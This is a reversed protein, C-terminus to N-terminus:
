YDTWRRSKAMLYKCWYKVEPLMTLHIYPAKTAPCPELITPPSAVSPGPTPKRVCRGLIWYAQCNQFKDEETQLDLLRDGLVSLTLHKTLLLCLASHDRKAVATVASAMSTCHIVACCRATINNFNAIAVSRRHAPWDISLNAHECDLLIELSAKWETEMVVLTRVM